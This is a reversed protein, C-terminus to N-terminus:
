LDLGGARVVASETAAAAEADPDDPLPPLADISSLGFYHLFADTTGYLIPRGPTQRRGVDAILEREILTKLVGDSSVGRIAEIDASTCPQRYAVITVVELAAKSLRNANPALLKGVIPAYDPKTTMQWGNAVEIIQLGGDSASYRLSLEDLATRVAEEDWETAKTLDKLTLPDGSVFLLAEVMGLLSRM